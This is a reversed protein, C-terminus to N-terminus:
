KIGSIICLSLDIRGKPGIDKLEPLREKYGKTGPIFATGDLETPCQFSSMTGTCHITLESEELPKSEVTYHILGNKRESSRRVFLRKTGQNKLRDPIQCMAKFSIDNMVVASGPQDSAWAELAAEVFYMGPLLAQGGMVHDMMAPCTAQSIEAVHLNPNNSSDLTGVAPGVDMPYKIKRQVKERLAPPRPKLFPHRPICMNEVNSFQYGLDRYMTSINVPLNCDMLGLLTQWFAVIDDERKCLSSIVKVRSTEGLCEIMSPILTKHPGLELLVDPEVEGLREMAQFFNVPERINNVVYNATLPAMFDGTVTSVVPIHEMPCRCETDLFKLRAHVEALCPDMCASHFATSGKLYTFKIGKPIYTELAQLQDRPGAVVVSSPSNHCAIECNAVSSQHLKLLDMADVRSMQLALMKGTGALHQQCWSRHYVVRVAQELSLYGGCCLAAIEGASHGMAAVPVVGFYKFLRELGLQVMFTLPQAYMTDDLTDEDLSELMKVPSWGSLEKFLTDFQMVADRYAKFIMLKSGMSVWQSGQGTFVFAVKAQPFGECIKPKDKASLKSELEKVSRVLYNRCVSLRTRNIAFCGCMDILKVGDLNERLFLGVDREHADLHEVTAASISFILPMRFSDGVIVEGNSMLPIMGDSVQMEEEQGDYESLIVHAYAGGVGFSNVSICVKKHPPFSERELCLKINSGDWDFDSRPCINKGGTPLFQRRKLMEIAKITSFLGAAIEAHGINGKISGVRLPNTQLDHSDQYVAKLAQLEILDGM